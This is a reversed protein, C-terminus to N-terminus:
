RAFPSAQTAFFEVRNRGQAKAEYLATDAAQLLSRVDNADDPFIAVGVSLGVSAGSGDLNFEEGVAAILKNAVAAADLRSSIDTLLIAFEDGGFRAVIDTDRVAERLRKAVIKLLQDGAAHGLRDNVQKFNDLDLFLVGLKRGASRAGDIQREAEERWRRRNALGTMSDTSALTSLREEAEKRKRLDHVQYLYCVPSGNRRLLTVSALAWISAGGTDVFRKEFEVFPAEAAVLRALQADELARDDVQTVDDRHLDVLTEVPCKLFECMAPNVQLFRLDLSLLAMGVPAFNFAARFREESQRLVEYAAVREKAESVAIVAGIICGHEDRIPSASHDIPLAQGDSTLLHQGLGALVRTGDRLARHVPLEGVAAGHLDEIILIDEVKGGRAQEQRVGLVSEATANMYRVREELDVAIIGDSMSRLTASYWRESDALKTELAHKHVAVEITARVEGRQFPKTLYGYPAAQAARRVTGLDSFATLFIVPARCYQSLNQAVEIGDITGKIVVDMLVVDPTTQAALARADAGNDAIGCVLYGMDALQDALDMAVVAEDEVLLIRVARIPSQEAARKPPPAEVCQMSM